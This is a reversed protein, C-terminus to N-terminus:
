SPIGGRRLYDYIISSPNEDGHGYIAHGPRIAGTRFGLDKDDADRVAKEAQTKSYAYCGAFQDLPGEMDQPEANDSFQVFSSPYRRWPPFFFNTPKIAISASSTAIFVDCGASKAARLVNKSGEVNITMFKPLLDAKRSGAHIFAVTHFVTLPIKAHEAPWPEEFVKAVSKRDTVDTEYYPV